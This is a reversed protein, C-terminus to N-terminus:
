NSKLQTWIEDYLKMNRGLDKVFELKKMIDDPPYIAANKLDDPNIHKMSAKNPTAYQNFNSLKAGVEADLIYNIFAEAMERNPAKAPICLNDVWIEGGERPVFYHTAADDSMGRAADGNYCMAMDVEKSLVKNKGEVGGAFGKSRKKADLLVQLAERLHGKDTTNVSHGKYLLAAGILGRMDDMLLFSGYQKKPDFYMGWTEDIKKDAKKRLYIGSTGWQYAVSYKNGADWPPDVFRKDLNKINPIKGHRLPAILKKKVLEPVIYDSPVCIDYLSVGGGQLKALMAENDEYLDITVKCDFKKEFETVIDPDIYESWIFVNLKNKQAWASASIFLCALILAFRKM